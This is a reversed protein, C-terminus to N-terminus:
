DKGVVKADQRMDKRKESGYQFYGLVHLSRHFSFLHPDLISIKFLMVSIKLSKKVFPMKSTEQRRGPGQTRQCGWASAWKRRTAAHMNGRSQGSWVPWVIDKDDAWGVAHTGADGVAEEGEGSTPQDSDMHASNRYCHASVWFSALLASWQCTTPTSCPECRYFPSNQAWTKDETGGRAGGEIALTDAHIQSKPFCRVVTYSIIENPKVTIM